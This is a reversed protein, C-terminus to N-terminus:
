AVLPGPLRYDTGRKSRVRPFRGRRRLRAARLGILERRTM